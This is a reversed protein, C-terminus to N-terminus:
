QFLFGLMVLTAVVIFALVFKATKAIVKGEGIMLGTVTCASIINNLCVGNGASAGVVQLALMANVNVGIADAAIQQVSGFTLNSVTTSGSFFSGLAGISASIAIWGGEFADSLIIGIISAPAAEDGTTMLQVLTLAGALAIAPSKVRDYVTGFIGTLSDSAEKRYIAYTVVSMLVFPILFPTYLLEYKWHLNPYTLIAELQFVLSASLKFIGYTGFHIAFNPETKKLLENLGIQPIRTIILLLVTGTIPSTRLLFEKVYSAGTKRPGIAMEIARQSDTTTEISTTSLLGLKSRDRSGMVNGSGVFAGDGEGGMLSYSANSETTDESTGGLASNLPVHEEDEDGEETSEPALSLAPEDRKTSSSMFPSSTHVVSRESMPAIDLPHRGTEHVSEMVDEEKLGVKFKILPVAVAMGIIGGLLSPFEYSFLSIGLMPIMTGTIALIAFILNRKIMKFPVIVGFVLPLLLYSGVVLAVASNFAIQGFDKESLGLSGLGYWIPTGAAGFVTAFTNALLLVVVSEFKPHGLSILMPAGLAVPTGFGSAGEVMTAFGFIVCLEAVGHGKTLAKMERMMYPLCRTCEMTEFLCIAGAMITLPTLAEHVGKVVSGCVLLPDSGLYMLRVLFMLFASAPLSRTTPVAKWGCPPVTAVVLFVIPLLCMIVDAARGGPGEAGVGSAACGCAECEALGACTEPCSTSPSPCVYPDSTPHIPDVDQDYDNGSM